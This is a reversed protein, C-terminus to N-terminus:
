KVTAHAIMSLEVPRLADSRPWLTGNGIDRQALHTVSGFGCAGLLGSMEPPSFSSLWPEGHQAAVAGVQEAYERAEADQLGHPLMYDAVLQSGPALGGIEALAHRIAAETLYMTVGLWSVFAPRSVDFGRGALGGRLSERELDLPVFTLSSPPSIGAAALQGLKWRQTAGQDVEFIRVGAVKALDSRYAFSDLGAGLIVYQLVGRGLAVALSDEAHRSRCVVQGRAMALIPHTGHQRHFALFQEAHDGLLAAAMTDAFIAPPQDVILHAARAAAATMATQSPMLPGPAEEPLPRGAPDAPGTQGPPLQESNM